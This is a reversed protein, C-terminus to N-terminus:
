GSVAAAEVLSLIALVAASALFPTRLNRFPQILSWDYAPTPVFGRLERAGAIALLLVAAAELSFVPLAFALNFRDRAQVLYQLATLLSLVVSGALLLGIRGRNVTEKEFWAALFGIGPVLCALGFNHVFIYVALFDPGFAETLAFLVGFPEGGTFAPVVVDVIGQLLSVTALLALLGLLLTPWRPATAVRTPRATAMASAM